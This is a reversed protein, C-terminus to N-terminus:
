LYRERIVGVHHREHGALIFPVSRVSIVYGSATGARAWAADSFGRFLLLSARRIAVLEALLDKMPRSDFRGERAYDEQEFGPLPTADDRAFRLARYGFVREVDCMHGVVERISWKGPAYRALTKEEPLSGLLKVTEAIQSELIALIEGDPVREIYRGYYPAHESPSPKQTLDFPM